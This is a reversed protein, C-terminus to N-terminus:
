VICFHRQGIKDRCLSARDDHENDLLQNAADLMRWAGGVRLGTPHLAYSEVTERALWTWRAADATM